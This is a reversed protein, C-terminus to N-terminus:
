ASLGGPGPAPRRRPFSESGVVVHEGANALAIRRLQNDSDATATVSQAIAPRSFAYHSTFPNGSRGGFATIRADKHLRLTRESSYCRPFLGLLIVRHSRSRPVDIM